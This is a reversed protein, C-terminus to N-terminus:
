GSERSELLRDPGALDRLDQRQAPHQGGGPNPPAGAYVAHHVAPEIPGDCVAKGSDQGGLQGLGAYFRQIAHFLIEFGVPPVPGSLQPLRNRIDQKGAFDFIGLSTGNPAIWKSITEPSAALFQELTPQDPLPRVAAAPAPTAAPALTAAPAAQPTAPAATPGSAPPGGAGGCSGWSRRCPGPLRRRPRREQQGKILGLLQGIQNLNFQEGPVGPKGSGAGAFAVFGAAGAGIGLLSM